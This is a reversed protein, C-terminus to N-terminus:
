ERKKQRRRLYASVAQKQKLASEIEGLYEQKRAELRVTEREYEAKQTAIKKRWNPISLIADQAAAPTMTEMLIKNLDNLKVNIESIETATAHLKLEEIEFKHTILDLLKAASDLSRKNRMM